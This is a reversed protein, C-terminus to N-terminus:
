LYPRLGASVLGLVIFIMMIHWIWSWLYDNKISEEDKASRKCKDKASRKCKISQILLDWCEVIAITYVLLNVLFGLDPKDAFFDKLPMTFYFLLGLAFYMGSKFVLSLALKEPSWFEWLKCLVFIIAIFMIVIQAFM